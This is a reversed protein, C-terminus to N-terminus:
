WTRICRIFSNRCWRPNTDIWTYWINKKSQYKQSTFNRSRSKIHMWRRTRRNVLSEKSCSKLPRIVWYEMQRGIQHSLKSSHSQLNVIAHTIRRSTQLSRWSRHMPTRVQLVKRWIQSSSSRIWIIRWWSRRREERPSYSLSRKSSRQRTFPKKNKWCM